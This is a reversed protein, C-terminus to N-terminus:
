EDISIVSRKRQEMYQIKLPEGPPTEIVFEVRNVVGKHTDLWQKLRYNVLIDSPMMKANCLPCNWVHSRFCHELFTELEMCQLHECYVSRAPVTMINFSLPCHVRVYCEDLKVLDDAIARTLPVNKRYNCVIDESLEKASLENAFVVAIIGFWLDVDECPTLDVVVSFIDENTPMVIDSIDIPPPVKISTNEKGAPINWDGGLPVVVGNVRIEMSIVTDDITFPHLWGKCQYDASLPILLVRRRQDFGGVPRTRTGHPSPFNTSVSCNDVSMAGLLDLFRYKPSLLFASDNEFVEGRIVSLVADDCPPAPAEDSEKDDSASTGSWVTGPFPEEESGESSPSSARSRKRGLLYTSRSDAAVGASPATDIPLNSSGSKCLQEVTKEVNVTKPSTMGLGGLTANQGEFLRVSEADNSNILYIESTDHYFRVYCDGGDFTLDADTNEKVIKGPWWSDDDCRILVHSGLPFKM